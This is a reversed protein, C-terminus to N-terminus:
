VPYFSSTNLWLIDNPQPLTFSFTSGKESESKVMLRGGNKEVFEKCLILGLGTGKERETGLTSFSEDIKFIKDINEKSIGIGTDTVSIECLKSDCFSKINIYGGQNTYKIGNSILNRLVTRIM